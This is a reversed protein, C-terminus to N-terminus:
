GRELWDEMMAALHDFALVYIDEPEIGDNSWNQNSSVIKGTELDYHYDLAGSALPIFNEPYAITSCFDPGRRRLDECDAAILEIAKLGNSGPGFGGDAISYLRKLEDPICWGVRTELSKWEDDTPAPKLPVAGPSQSSTEFHNDTEVFSRAELPTQGWARMQAEMARRTADRTERWQQMYDELEAESLDEGTAQASSLLHRRTWEERRRDIDEVVPLAIKAKDESSNGCRRVPDSAREAIRALLVDTITGM